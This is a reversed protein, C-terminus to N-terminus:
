IKRLHDHSAATTRISYILGYGSISVNIHIGKIATFTWHWCRSICEFSKSRPQLYHTPKIHYNSSIPVLVWPLNPWVFNTPRIIGNTRWNGGSERGWCTGGAGICIIRWIIIFGIFYHFKLYNSNSTRRINRWLEQANKMPVELYM